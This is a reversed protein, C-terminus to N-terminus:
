FPRVCMDLASNPQDLKLYVKALELYTLVMEQQKLSSLFQKEADRLMGLQYYAKGLRAQPRHRDRPHYLISLTLPHISLSSNLM